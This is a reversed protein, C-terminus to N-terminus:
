KGKNLVVSNYTRYYIERARLSRFEIEKVEEVVYNQKQVISDNGKGTM